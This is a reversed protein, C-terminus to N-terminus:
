ISDLLERAEELLRTDSPVPNRISELERIVDRLLDEAEEKDGTDPISVTGEYYFGRELADSASRYRRALDGMARSRRRENWGRNILHSALQVYFDLNPEDREGSAIEEQMLDVSLRGLSVAYDTNGFSIVGPVAAYLQGLVFYSNAHSEDQSVAQALLDRMDGARFLSDLIGKTQGWRGINASKWYYGEPSSPNAEIARDAFAEGTEFIALLDDTSAGADEAQDGRMLEVAAMRWYVEAREAGSARGELTQLLEMAAAVNEEDRLDDVRELEAELSQAALPLAATLFVTLLLAARRALTVLRDNM